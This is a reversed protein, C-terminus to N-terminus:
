NQWQYLEENDESQVFGLRELLAVSTPEDKDVQAFVPGRCERFLKQSAKIGRATTITELFPRMKESVTSFALVFHKYYAIGAIGVCEGDLDWAIGKVSPIPPDKFEEVDERRVNRLTFEGSM